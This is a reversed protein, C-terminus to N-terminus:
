PKAKLWGEASTLATWSIRQEDLASTPNRNLLYTGM